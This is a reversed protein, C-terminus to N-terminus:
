EDGKNLIQPDPSVLLLDTEDSAFIFQFKSVGLQNINNQLEIRQGDGSVTVLDIHGDFPNTFGAGVFRLGQPSQNTALLDYTILGNQSLEVNGDCLVGNQQYAFHAQRASDLTVSLQIVQGATCYPLTSEAQSLGSLLALASCFVFKKM